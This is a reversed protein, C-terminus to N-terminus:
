DLIVIMKEIADHIYKEATRQSVHLMDATDYISMSEIYRYFLVDRHNIDDLKDINQRILAMEELCRDKMMIYDNQTKPESYSGTPSDRYSIAKVNILKNQLYDAKDKLNRYSKLYTRVEEATM